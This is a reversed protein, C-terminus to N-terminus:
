DCEILGRKLLMAKTRVFHENQPLSEYPNHRLFKYFDHLLFFDVLSELVSMGNVMYDRLEAAGRKIYGSQLFYKRIKNEQKYKCDVLLFALTRAVDYLPSGKAAKEFDLIGTIKSGEFLINGRVFDMHLAHQGPLKKSAALVDFFHCRVSHIGLKSTLAGAVHTDVFYRQMRKLLASNEDAVDPLSQTDYLSLTQHMDSMAQGLAKIHDMTYAEWPITSGPLYNYLAAYRVRGGSALKLIRPNRPTRASMGAAAVFAGVTNANKIRALIGAESKYLILNYIGNIGYSTNRYGKQPAAVRSYPVNYARLIRAIVEPPM